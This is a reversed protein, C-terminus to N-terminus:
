SPAGTSAFRTKTVAYWALVITVFLALLLTALAYRAYPRHGPPYAHPVLRLNAVFVVILAGGTAGTHGGFDYGILAGFVTTVFVGLVILATLLIEVGRARRM